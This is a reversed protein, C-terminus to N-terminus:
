LLTESKKLGSDDKTKNQDSQLESDAKLHRYERFHDPNKRYCRQGFQCLPKAAEREAILRLDQDVELFQHDKVTKASM